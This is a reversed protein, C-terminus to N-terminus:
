EADSTGGTTEATATAGLEPTDQWGTGLETSDQGSADKEFVAFFARVAHVAATLEGSEDGSTGDMFDDYAEGELACATQLHTWAVLQRRLEPEVQAREWLRIGELMKGHPESLSSEQWPHYRMGAPRLPQSAALLDIIGYATVPKATSASATGTASTDPQFLNISQASTKNAQM